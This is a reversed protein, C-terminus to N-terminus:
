LKKKKLLAFPKKSKKPKLDALEPEQEAEETQGNM